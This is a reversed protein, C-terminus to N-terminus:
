NFLLLVEELIKNRLPLMVSYFDNINVDHLRLDTNNGDTNLDFHVTIADIDTLMGNTILQGPARNIDLIVNAFESENSGSLPTRSVSRNNWEFPPNESFYNLPTFVKTYLRTIIQPDIDHVTLFSNLAIRNFPDPSIKKFHNMFKLVDRVFNDVEGISEIKPTLTRVLDIRSSLINISWDETETTLRPRLLPTTSNPTLEHISSPLFGDDKFLELLKFIGNPSADISQFKGFFSAQFSSNVLIM